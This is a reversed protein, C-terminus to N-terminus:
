RRAKGRSCQLLVQGGEPVYRLDSWAKERGACEYHITLVKPNGPTPDPGLFGNQVTFGCSGYGDCRAYVADFAQKCTAQPQHPSQSYALISDFARDYPAYRVSKIKIVAEDDIARDALLERLKNARADASNLHTKLEGVRSNLTQELGSVRGNFTSELV